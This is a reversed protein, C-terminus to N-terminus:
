QEGYGQWFPAGHVERAIEKWHSHRGPKSPGVQSILVPIRTMGIWNQYAPVSLYVYKWCVVPVHEFHSKFDFEDTESRFERIVLIERGQLHISSCGTDFHLHTNPYFWRKETHTDPLDCPCTRHSLTPHIGTRARDWRRCRHPSHQLRQICIDFQSSLHSIVTFKPSAYLFSIVTGWRNVWPPSISWDWILGEAWLGWLHVWWTRLWFLFFLIRSM